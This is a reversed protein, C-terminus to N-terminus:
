ITIGLWGTLLGKLVKAGVVAAFGILVHHFPKM